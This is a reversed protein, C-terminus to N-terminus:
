DNQQKSKDAHRCYLVFPENHGVGNAAHLGLSITALAFKVPYVYPMSFFIASKSNRIAFKTINLPPLEAVLERCCNM